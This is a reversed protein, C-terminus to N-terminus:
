SRGHQEKARILAGVALAALAGIAVVSFTCGVRLRWDLSQPFTM